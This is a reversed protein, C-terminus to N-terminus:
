DLDFLIGKEVMQKEFLFETLFHGDKDIYYGADFDYDFRHKTPGALYVPSIPKGEIIKILLDLYRCQRM